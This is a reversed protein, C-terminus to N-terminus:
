IAAIRGFLFKCDCVAVVNAATRECLFGVAGNEEAQRIFDHGDVRAGKLCVFVDGACVQRSDIVFRQFDCDGKLTGMLVKAVDSLRMEM